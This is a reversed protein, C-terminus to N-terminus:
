QWASHLRHLRFGGAPVSSLIGTGNQAALTPPTRRGTGGRPPPVGHFGPGTGPPSDRSSWLATTASDCGGPRGNSRTRTAAMACATASTVARRASAGRGWGSQRSRTGNGGRKRRTGGAAGRTLPPPEAQPPRGPRKQGKTGKSGLLAADQKTRTNPVYSRYAKRGAQLQRRSSLRLSNPATQM